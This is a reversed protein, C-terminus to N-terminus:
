LLAKLTVINNENKQGINISKPIVQKYQLTEIM